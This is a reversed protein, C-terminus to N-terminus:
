ITSSGFAYRPSRTRSMASPACPQRPRSLERIRCASPTRLPKKSTKVPACGSPSGRLSSHSRTESLAYDRHAARVRVRAFRSRLAENTGERWRVTRYARAPLSMALAKVTSPEHGPARRLLRPRPGRGSYAKAALPEVGPAWVTTGPRVGVAYLPGLRTLQERFGTEDGYGADALVIGPTVGAAIAARVQELAIQGKTAFQVAEPVQAKARRAADDAWQQPLYLRYGIPVSARASALSLSVAVQCNDQKGLQGCYQRAVGVSHQGKKPFGTDDIIWYWGGEAGLLPAVSDHVRALVAEDSWQSNAVFHHLSQHRASVHEPDIRAAIPEVSKRSLPLMLGTCYGKLGARRDSHALGDCLYALYRESMGM